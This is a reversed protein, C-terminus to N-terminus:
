FTKVIGAGIALYKLDLDQEVTGINATTSLSRYSVMPRLEFGVGLNFALGAQVEWGLNHGTEDLLDGNTDEIELHNYIGGAALVYYIDHNIVPHVFRLGFTYGTEEFDLDKEVLGDGNFKNWGWGAYVAMHPMVKYALTAEVGFGTNLEVPGLDETAFNVGPRLEISWRQQSMAPWCVMIGLFILPILKSKM